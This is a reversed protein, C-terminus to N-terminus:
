TGLEILIELLEIFALFVGDAHGALLVRDFSLACRELRGCGHFIYDAQAPGQDLIGGHLLLTAGIEGALLDRDLGTQRAHWALARYLERRRDALAFIFQRM